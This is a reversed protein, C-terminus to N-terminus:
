NTHILIINQIKKKFHIEARINEKKNKIQNNNLNLGKSNNNKNTNTNQIYFDKLISIIFLM